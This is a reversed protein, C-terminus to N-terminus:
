SSKLWIFNSLGIWDASGGRRGVLQIVVGRGPTLWKGFMTVVDHGARLDRLQSRDWEYQDGPDLHFAVRDFASRSFPVQTAPWARLRFRELKEEDLEKENVTIIVRAGGERTMLTVPPLTLPPPSESEPLEIECGVLVLGGAPRGIAKALAKQLSEATSKAGQDAFLWALTAGSSPFDGNANIREVVFHGGPVAERRRVWAKLRGATTLDVPGIVVVVDHTELPGISSPDLVPPDDETQTGLMAIFRLGELSVVGAALKLSATEKPLDSAKTSSSFSVVACMRLVAEVKPAAGASSAASIAIVLSRIMRSMRTM